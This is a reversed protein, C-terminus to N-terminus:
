VYFLLNDIVLKYFYSLIIFLFRLILLASDEMVRPRIEMLYSSLEDIPIIKMHILYDFGGVM